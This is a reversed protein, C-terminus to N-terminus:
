QEIMAGVSSNPGLVSKGNEKIIKRNKPWLM